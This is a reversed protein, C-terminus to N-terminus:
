DGGGVPHLRWGGGNSWNVSLVTSNTGAYQASYIVNTGEYLRVLSPRVYTTDIVLPVTITGPEFVSGDFGGPFSIPPPGPPLRHRISCCHVLNTDSAGALFYFPGACGKGFCVKVTINTMSENPQLPPNFYIIERSFTVCAPPPAPDQVLFLYKIPIPPVTVNKVTFIYDYCGSASLPLPPREASFFVCCPEFTICNAVSCCKFFNTSHAGVTFCLNTLGATNTVFITQCTGQGPNLVSPLTIIDQNVTVGPPLDLISLYKIPDTGTNTVCFQWRYTMNTSICDVSRNTITVCSPCVSM